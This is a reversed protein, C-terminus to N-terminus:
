ALIDILRDIAVNGGSVLLVTPESRWAAHAGSRRAEQWAAFTLAGTPEVVLKAERAYWRTAALIADEPVGVFDDVHERILRFNHEGVSQTRVGDAVTSTVREAPWSLLEGAEFSAKADAAVEPEVGVIRADPAQGALATAIGAILGGGGVCVLVHRAEPLQEAIELGVTGQGAIIWPHDYPPVLTKGEREAIEAAARNRAEANNECRVVEAGLARTREVKVEPAGHPIVITAPVGFHRAAAAVGQAHNGSSHAVVGRRRERDELRTLFHFAGRIKFSNTRQLSECKAYVEGEVPLRVLPTRLAVPAIRDRAALVDDLTVAPANRDRTSETM